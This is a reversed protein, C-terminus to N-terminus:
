KAGRESKVDFRTNWYKLANKATQGGFYVDGCSPCRINWDMVNRKELMPLCGCFPCPKAIGGTVDAYFTGEGDWKGEIGELTDPMFPFPLMLEQGPIASAVYAKVDEYIGVNLIGRIKMVFHSLSPEGWEPHAACGQPRREFSYLTVAMAKSRMSYGNRLIVYVLRKEQKASAERAQNFANEVQKNYCPRYEELKIGNFIMQYWKSKITLNLVIKEM